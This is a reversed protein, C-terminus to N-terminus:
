LIFSEYRMPAPYDAVIVIALAPVFQVVSDFSIASLSTAADIKQPLTM